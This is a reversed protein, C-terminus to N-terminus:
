RSGTEPEKQAEYSATKKCAMYAVHEAQSDVSSVHEVRAMGGCIKAHAAIHITTHVNTLQQLVGGKTPM